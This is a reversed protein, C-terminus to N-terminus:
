RVLHVLRVRAALCPTDPWDSQVIRSLFKVGLQIVESSHKIVVNDM